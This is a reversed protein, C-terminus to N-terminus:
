RPPLSEHHEALDYWALWVAPLSLLVWINWFIYTETKQAEQAWSSAKYMSRMTWFRMIYIGGYILSWLACVLSVLSATRTIPQQTADTIQFM